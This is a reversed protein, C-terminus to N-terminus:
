RDNSLLARQNVTLVQSSITITGTRSFLLGLSVLPVNYSLTGSGAGTNSGTLQIWSNGSTATWTCWAQTTIEVSFNGGLLPVTQTTPSLSYSCGAAAQTVTFTRGAITVTGVRQAVANPAITLRVSGNGSGAAGSAITIWSVQSAATWSCGSAATVTVTAAGGVATVAQADAGLAYSCSISGAAQTVTYTQGAITVTGTRAAGPNAAVTLNVAGNGTGSAGSAVAIWSAQSAATWSCEAGATVNVASTAGTAAAALQTSHISYTCPAPPSAAAQQTVTYAQGAITVVGTRAAGTNAAVIMSVTANGSGSAGSTVTIWDVPSAATWSCAAAATVGVASTVGAAPATLQTASIGYSCPTAGIPQQTVTYTFGAVTVLGVREAATNAAIELVVIGNGNGANGSTITMWPAHSFATWACGSSASVAVSGTSAAAPASQGTAAISYSCTGAAGAQRVIYTHGTITVLGVRLGGANPAINLRVAGSGTGSAGSTVTIWPAHSTAIWPCDGASTVVVVDDGGSAAVFQESRGIGVSCPTGAGAQNVAFTRDGITLTGNRTSATNVDTRYRLTGTGTGGPTGLVSLWSANSTAAWQCGDIVAVAVTGEGGDTSFTQTAPTLTFQCAAGGQALEVRTDGVIVAGRRMSATPNESAVFGVVGTGQGSANATIAIWNTESSARWVCESAVTVTLTGPGGAPSISPVSAPLSVACKTGSPGLVNTSSSQCAASALLAGSLLAVLAIATRPM